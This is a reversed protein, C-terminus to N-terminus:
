LYKLMKADEIGCIDQMIKDQDEKIIEKDKTKIKYSDGKQKKRTDENLAKIKTINYMSNDDKIKEFVVEEQKELYEVYKKSEKKQYNKRKWYKRNKFKKMYKEEDIIPDVM